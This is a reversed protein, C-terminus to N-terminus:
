LYLYIFLIPRQFGFRFWLKSTSWSECKRLFLNSYQPTTLISPFNLKSVPLPQSTSFLGLHATPLFFKVTCTVRVRIQRQLWWGTLDESRARTRYHCGFKSLLSLRATTSARAKTMMDTPNKDTHIKVLKMLQKEIIKHIWHYRVNIHKTRSHYTANRSLDM